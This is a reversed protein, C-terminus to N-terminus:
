SFIYGVDAICIEDGIEIVATENADLLRGKIRTGNTSNLDTVSYRGGDEDIRLHFRSVADRQLVYDALNKNKGIVFPYYSLMIEEETDGVPRLRRIEGDQNQGTLLTTQFTEDSTQCPSIGPFEATKKEGCNEYGLVGMIKCDQGSLPDSEEEDEYLIRWPSDEAKDEQSARRKPESERGRNKNEGGFLLLVIDVAAIAFLLGGDLFVLALGYNQLENVGKFLWLAVPVLVVVALWAGVQKAIPLGRKEGYGTREREGNGALGGCGTIQNNETFGGRGSKGKSETFGGGGSKGKSETFGSRVDQTNSGAFGSWGSKEEDEALMGGWGALEEEVIGGKGGPMEEKGAWEGQGAGAGNSKSPSIFRLIDDIGFHDKLSEQYMGYALVVCERDKHNVCKLIYQLFRSLQEPFDGKQGPVLCFGVQFLEPEVYILEPNLLVGGDSLLYGEMEMLVVHLRIMIRCIEERTIFRTELLRNLPQRSTIDYYYFPRGDQYRIHMPMLGRIKNASVMNAEYGPSDKLDPTVVLYNHKIERKYRIEM